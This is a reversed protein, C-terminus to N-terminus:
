PKVFDLIPIFFLYDVEGYTFGESAKLNFREREEFSLQIPDFGEYAKDFVKKKDIISSHLAQNHHVESLKM